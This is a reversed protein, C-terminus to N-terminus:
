DIAFFTQNLTIDCLWATSGLGADTGPPAIHRLLRRHLDRIDAARERHYASDAENLLGALEDTTVQIASELSLRDNRICAEVRHIFQPDKLFLLHASFIDASARGLESQVCAQLQQLERSSTKLAAHFCALEAGIQDASIGRKPLESPGTGLLVAHGQAYGPSIPKGTISKM